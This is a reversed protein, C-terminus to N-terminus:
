QLLRLVRDYQWNLKERHEASTLRLKEAVQASTGRLMRFSTELADVDIEDISLCYESLGAEQMYATVKEDYSFALVPKYLLHSLLVGHLRSAIVLAASRLQAFLSDINPTDLITVAQGIGQSRSRLVETHVAKLAGRDQQSSSFLVVEYGQDFLRVVFEGMVAIYREYFSADKVPWVDPSLYAIPNVAILARDGERLPNTEYRLREEPFGFVLDPYVSDNRGVSVSGFQMKTKRDRYSRYQALGLAGHLMIVSLSSGIPGAGVSLFVYRARVIRAIVGWKLLAYPQRWPGGWYDCLQGGGSVILMRQGRLFWIALTIHVLEKPLLLTTRAFRRMVRYAARLAGYAVPLNKLRDKLGETRRGSDAAFVTKIAVGRVGQSKTRRTVFQSIPFCRVGHRQEVRPPELVILNLDCQPLRRRIAAIVAEQIAADGLNGGTYPTILAIRTQEKQKM